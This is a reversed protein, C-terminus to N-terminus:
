WGAGKCVSWRTPSTATRGGAPGTGVPLGSSLALEGDPGSIGRVPHTPVFVGRNIVAAYAATM